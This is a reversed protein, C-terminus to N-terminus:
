SFKEKLDSRDHAIIEKKKANVRKLQALDQESRAMVKKRDEIEM